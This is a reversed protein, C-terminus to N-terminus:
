PSDKMWCQSDVGITEAADRHDDTSAQVANVPSTAKHLHRRDCRTRRGDQFGRAVVPPLFLPTKAIKRNAAREPHGVNRRGAREALVYRLGCVCVLSCL